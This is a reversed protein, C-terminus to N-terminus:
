TIERISRFLALVSYVINARPSIENNYYIKIIRKNVNYNLEM